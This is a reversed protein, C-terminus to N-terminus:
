CCSLLWLQETQKSENYNFKIAFPEKALVVTEFFIFQDDQTSHAHKSCAYLTM